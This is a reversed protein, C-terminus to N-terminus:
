KVLEQTKHEIFTSIAESISKANLELCLGVKNGARRLKEEIDPWNRNSLVWKICPSILSTKILFDLLESLGLVCEDLADIILYTNYLNPDQLINTIIGVLATWANTNDFLSEGFPDYKKRVYLILLPQQDVLLYILGRLVAIATNIRSNTAQLFFYSLHTKADLKELEHIIGCLLITKGKGPDGTIWLLRTEHNDRWRQFDPHELIWRYSGQDLGGKTKEIREKDLRPDTICLDRICKNDEQSFKESGVAEGACSSVTPVMIPLDPLRQGIAQKYLRIVNTRVLKYNDLDAQLGTDFRCINSHDAELRVVNEMSGPLGFTASKKSVINGCGEYFSVIPCDALRHVWNDYLTDAYLSGSTVAQIIDNSASRSVLNVIGAVTAGLTVLKKNGGDHPTAFFVLGRTSDRIANHHPNNFASVIAQKVLIGGLSHAIFILPRDPEEDREAELCSLLINAEDTFRKKTQTLAPFSDYSYLFIRADKAVSPLDDRLWLRSSGDATEKSWTDYAHDRSNSPNLGHIAVIDVKPFGNTDGPVLERLPM